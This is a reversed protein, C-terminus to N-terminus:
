TVYVRLVYSAVSPITMSARKRDTSGSVHEYGISVGYWNALLVGIM